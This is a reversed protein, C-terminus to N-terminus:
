RAPGSVLVPEEGPSLRAYRVPGTLPVGDVVPSQPVPGGLAVFVRTGDPFAATVAAGEVACRVRPPAAEGGRGTLGILAVHVTRDAARRGTAYPVAAHRGFASTGQATAVAMEDHGALSVFTSTLGDDTTAEALHGATRCRPPREGAVQWGSDHLPLRRPAEVLHVRLEYAGWVVSATEIRAATDAQGPWVPRHWSAAYRDQVHLRHIRTRRSLGLQPHVLAAHNDSQLRHRADQAHHPGTATSYAFRAYHPDGDARVPAYGGRVAGGPARGSSAQDVTAHNDSGHNVLRVLGDARTASLVFGPAPLARVHDAREVPLPEEPQTWCPHDAPLLLGLFAKGLWYPSAPGSYDQM